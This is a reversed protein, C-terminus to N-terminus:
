YIESARVRSVSASLLTNPSPRRARLFEVKLCGFDAVSGHIRKRSDAGEFFQIETECADRISSQLPQRREDIQLPEAEAPTLIVPEPNAANFPHFCSLIRSRPVAGTVSSAISCMLSIVARSCREKLLESTVSAPMCCKVARPFRTDKSRRPTSMVSSPMSLNDAIFLRFCSFRVSPRKVSLPSASSALNGANSRNSSPRVRTVSLPKPASAAIWVSCTM